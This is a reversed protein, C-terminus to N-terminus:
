FGANVEHQRGPELTLSGLGPCEIQDNKYLKASIPAAADPTEWRWKGISVFQLPVGKEWSLGPGDGRIFLKNGIGIYATAILRTFGDSTIASETAEPEDPTLGLDLGADDTAKTKRARPPKPAPPADVPVEDAHPEAASFVEAPAPTEDEVSPAVAAAIIPEASPSPEAAAPAPAAIPAPEEPKSASVTPHEAATASEPIPEHGISVNDISTETAPNDASKHPSSQTGAKGKSKPTHSKPASPPTVAVSEASRVAHTIANSVFSDLQTTARALAENLGKEFSVLTTAKAQIDADLQALARSIKEAAAQLHDLDEKIAVQSAIASGALQQTLDDIRGQLQDPLKSIVDLSHKSSEAIGHLGSTAISLQEASDATTRALAAIQHQRETLEADQRRAYNALYPVVALAAGIVVCATIAILAGPSLPTASRWAITGATAILVLDGAIFPFKPLKSAEESHNM